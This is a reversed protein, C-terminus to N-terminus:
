GSKLIEQKEETEGPMNWSLAETVGHSSGELNKANRQKGIM